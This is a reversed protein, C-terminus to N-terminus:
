KMKIKMEEGYGIDWIWYEIEKECKWRGVNLGGMAGGSDALNPAVSLGRGRRAKWRLGKM